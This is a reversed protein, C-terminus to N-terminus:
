GMLQRFKGRDCNKLINSVNQLIINEIVGEMNLNFELRCKDLM